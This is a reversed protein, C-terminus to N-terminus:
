MLQTATAGWGVLQGQRLVLPTCEDKSTRGDGQVRQTRYYLVQVLEDQRQYAENFDAVGMLQEIQAADMGLTLKALMARNRSEQSHWEDQSWQQEYRGKDVKIICGTLSFTAIGALLLPMFKTIM